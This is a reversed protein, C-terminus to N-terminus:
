ELNVVESLMFVYDDVKKVNHYNTPLCICRDEDVSYIVTHKCGDIITVEEAIKTGGEILEFNNFDRVYRFDIDEDEVGLAAKKEHVYLLKTHYTKLKSDWSINENTAGCYYLFRRLVRLAHGYSSQNDFRGSEITVSPIKRTRASYLTSIGNFHRIHKEKEVELIYKVGLSRAIDISSSDVFAFPESYSTVCHSDVMASAERILKQIGDRHVKLHSDKVERDDRFLRNLDQTDEPAFRTGNFVAQPNGIRLAIKGKKLKVDGALVLKLFEEIAYVGAHENGHMGGIWLMSQALDETPVGSDVVWTHSVEPHHYVKNADEAGAAILQNFHAEIDIGKYPNEYESM